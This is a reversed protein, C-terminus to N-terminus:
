RRRSIVRFSRGSSSMAIAKVSLSVRLCGVFDSSAHSIVVKRQVTQGHDDCFRFLANFSGGQEHPWLAKQTLIKM